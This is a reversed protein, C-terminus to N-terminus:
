LPGQCLEQAYPQAKDLVEKAAVTVCATYLRLRMPTAIRPLDLRIQPDHLVEMRLV